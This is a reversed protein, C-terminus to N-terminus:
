SAAVLTSGRNTLLGLPLRVLRVVDGAADRTADGARSRISANASRDGGRGGLEAVLPQTQSGRFTSVRDPVKKKEFYNSKRGRWIKLKQLRPPTYSM